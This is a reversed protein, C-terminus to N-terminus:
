DESSSSAVEAGAAAAAAGGAIALRAAPRRLNSSSSASSSILSSQSAESSSGSFGSEAGTGSLFFPVTFCFIASFSASSFLLLSNPKSTLLWFYLSYLSLKM